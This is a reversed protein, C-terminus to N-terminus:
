KGEDEDIIKFGTADKVEQVTPKRGLKLSLKIVDDIHQIFFNYTEKEKQTKARRREFKLGMIIIKRILDM